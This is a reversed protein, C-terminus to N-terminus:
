HLRIEQTSLLLANFFQYNTPVSKDTRSIIITEENASM